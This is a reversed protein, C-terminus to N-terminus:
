GARSDRGIRRTPSFPPPGRRKHRDGPVVREVLNGFPQGQGRLAVAGFGYPRMVVGARHPPHLAVADLAQAM